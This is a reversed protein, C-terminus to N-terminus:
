SKQKPGGFLGRMYEIAADKILADKRDEAKERAQAAEAKLKAAADETIKRLKARREASKDVKAAAGAAEQRRKAVNNAFTTAYRKRAASSASM